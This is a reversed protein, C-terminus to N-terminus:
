HEVSFVRFGKKVLIDRPYASVYLISVRPPINILRSFFDIASRPSVAENWKSAGSGAVVPLGYKHVHQHLVRYILVRGGLGAELWDNMSFELPKSFQKMLNFQHKDIFRASDRDLIISDVRSDRAAVRASEVSRPKVSVVVRSRDISRLKDLLEKRSVADIVRKEFFRIDRCINSGPREVVVVSYGMELLTNCLEADLSRIWFDIYFGKDRIVM